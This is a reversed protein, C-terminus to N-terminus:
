GKIIWPGGTGIGGPAPAQVPPAPIPGPTTPAPAAPGYPGAERENVIIMKM